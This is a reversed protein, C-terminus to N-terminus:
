RRKFWADFFSVNFGELISKYNSVKIKSDKFSAAWKKGLQECFTRVEKGGNCLIAPIVYVAMLTNLGYQVQGARGTCSLKELAEKAQAVLMEIMEDSKNESIGRDVEALFTKHEKCFKGFSDAYKERSFGKVWVPYTSFLPVIQGAFSDGDFPKQGDKKWRIPEGCFMCLIRERDGPVHLKEKCAPCSIEKWEM